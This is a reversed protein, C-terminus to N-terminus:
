RLVWVKQIDHASVWVFDGAVRVAGSGAPPGFIAVIRNTQPDIAQLLTKTARVWVRGNGAAIDGGGGPVGADITAVVQNTKPDVRSVTGDGQNLTWIGGEGAALFRPRPGVSITAVVKNTAPDIRQLSGPGTAGRAGTTTVWVSKSSVDFAAAYSNPAVEIKAVVTNTTPDIRSLVGAADTLLWIAGSGAAVSLEGSRDALGTSITAAVTATKRDIRYLSQDSCNAVWVSDDTMAPVGCPRPMPVTAVPAPKDHALKEMRGRNTIWVEKADGILFDASGPLTLTASARDTIQTVLPETTSPIARLATTQQAPLVYPPAFKPGGVVLLALILALSTRL